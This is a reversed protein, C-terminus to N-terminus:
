SADMWSARDAEAPYFPLEGPKALLGTHSAGCLRCQRSLQARLWQWGSCEPCQALRTDYGLPDLWQLYPDWIYPTVRRMVPPWGILVIVDGTVERALEEPKHRRQTHTGKAEIFTRIAPLWFDPLYREGSALKVPRKEYEWAIGLQDLTRAWGGELESRLQEGRYVMPRAEPEAADRELQRKRAAVWQAPRMWRLMDDADPREGPQGGFPTARSPHPRDM